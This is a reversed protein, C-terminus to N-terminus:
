VAPEHRAQEELWREFLDRHMFYRDGIHVVPLDTRHMLRYAMARSFGKKQLDKISLMTKEDM